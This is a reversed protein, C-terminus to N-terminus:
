MEYGWILARKESHSTLISKSKSKIREKNKSSYKITQIAYKIIVTDHVLGQNCYTVKKM